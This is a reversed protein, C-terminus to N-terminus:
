EPELEELGGPPPAFTTASEPYTAEDAAYVRRAGVAYWRQAAPPLWAYKAEYARLLADDPASAAAEGEVVVVERVLELQVSVAPRALLNRVKRSRPGATFVLVGGHWVCWVPRVYPRLDADITALWYNHASLLREEV